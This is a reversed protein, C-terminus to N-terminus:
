LGALQKDEEMVRAGGLREEPSPLKLHINSGDQCAQYDCIYGATRTDEDEEVAQHVSMQHRDDNAAVRFSSAIYSPVSYMFLKWLDSGREEMGERM